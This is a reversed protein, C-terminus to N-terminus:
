HVPGAGGSGAPDSPEADDAPPEAWTLLAAVKGRAEQYGDRHLAHGLDRARAPRLMDAVLADIDDFAVRLDALLRRVDGPDNWDFRRRRM